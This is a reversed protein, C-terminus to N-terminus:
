TSPVYRPDKTEDTPNQLLSRLEDGVIAVNAVSPNPCIEKYRGTKVPITAREQVKTQQFTSHLM